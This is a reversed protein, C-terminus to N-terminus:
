DPHWKQRRRTGMQRLPGGPNAVSVRDQTRSAEQQWASDHDIPETADSQVRADDQREDEHAQPHDRIPAEVADRDLEVLGGDGAHAGEREIQISPVAVRRTGISFRVAARHPRGISAIRRARPGRGDAVGREGLAARTGRQLGERGRELWAHRQGLDGEVAAAERLCRALQARHEGRM